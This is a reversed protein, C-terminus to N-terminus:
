IELDKKKNEEAKIKLADNEKGYIEKFKIVSQILMFFLFLTLCIQIIVQPFIINFLIGLTSGILVTPLM